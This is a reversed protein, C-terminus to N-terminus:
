RVSSRMVTTMTRPERPWSWNGGTNQFRCGDSHILGRLPQDAWRDALQRQWEDLVIPRDHKKGPGHQPFLCPWCKWYSSVEVRNKPRLQVHTTGGRVARTASATSDIAGPYKVGLV